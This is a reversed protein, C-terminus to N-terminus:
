TGFLRHLRTFTMDNLKLGKRAFRRSKDCRSQQTPAIVGCHRAADIPVQVRHSDERYRLRWIGACRVAFDYGCQDGAV